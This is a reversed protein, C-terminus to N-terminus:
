LAKTMISTLWYNNNELSYEGIISTIDRHFNKESKRDWISRSSRFLVTKKSQGMLLSISCDRSLFLLEVESVPEAHGM